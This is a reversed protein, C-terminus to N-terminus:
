MIVPHKAITSVKIDTASKKGRIIKNVVDRRTLIGWQGEKNPEVGVSSVENDRMLKMADELSDDSTVTLLSRTMVEGVTHPTRGTAIMEELPQMLRRIERQKREKALKEQRQARRKELDVGGEIQ